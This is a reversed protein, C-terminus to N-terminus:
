RAVMKMMGRMPESLRAILRADRGYPDGLLRVTGDAEAEATFYVIYVPLSRQLQITRTRVPDTLAEDLETGDQLRAALEEIHQVRVCGHSLARNTRAFAAKNPTDHLYIAHSNPMDIKIRGLANRPGPAQWVLLSGDARRTTRYDKGGPVGEKLVSPPLTWGPNAVISQAHLALQPTPTRPAGVVVNYAAEESGDRILALRYAPVNVYLYRDGLARPMWRWRELNARLLARQGADGVSAAYATKLAHYQDHEPLLSRLWGDVGDNDLAADLAAALRAPDTSPAIHWDFSAKDDIRGDAYDHALRLASASALTDLTPGVQRADVAARLQDAGYDAPNLGEEASRDIEALLARADPLRWRGEPQQALMAIPELPPREAPASGGLAIVGVIILPLLASLRAMAPMPRRGRVLGPGGTRSFLPLVAGIHYM